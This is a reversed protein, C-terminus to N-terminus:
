EICNFYMDASLGFTNHKYWLSKTFTSKSMITILESIILGIENLLPFYLEHQTYHQIEKQRKKSQGLKIKAFVCACM